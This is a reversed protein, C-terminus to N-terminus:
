IYPYYKNIRVNPSLGEDIKLEEITYHKIISELACQCYQKAENLHKIGEQGSSEICKKIWIERSNVEQTGM